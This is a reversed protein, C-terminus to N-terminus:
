TCESGARLRFRFLYVSVEPNADGYIKSINDAKVTLQAKLITLSGNELKITYTDDSGGTLTVPYTGPETTTGAITAISPLM